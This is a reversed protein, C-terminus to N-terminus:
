LSLHQQSPLRLLTGLPRVNPYTRKNTEHDRGLCVRILWRSGGPAIIQGVKRAM